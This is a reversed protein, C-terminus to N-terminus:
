SQNSVLYSHRVREIQKENAKEKENEKVEM